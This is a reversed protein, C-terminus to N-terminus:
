ALEQKKKKLKMTCENLMTQKSVPTWMVEVFDKYSLAKAKAPTKSALIINACQKGKFYM